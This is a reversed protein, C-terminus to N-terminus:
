AKQHYQRYTRVLDASIGFHAAIAEDSANQNVSLYSSIDLALKLGQEIGQIVGKRAAIIVASDVVSAHEMVRATLEEVTVELDGRYMEVFWNSPTSSNSKPMGTTM